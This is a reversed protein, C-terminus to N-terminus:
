DALHVPLLQSEQSNSQRNCSVMGFLFCIRKALEERKYWTILYLTSAPFLGGEAAGLLLRTVLLEAYNHIFGTCLRVLGWGMAIAPIM